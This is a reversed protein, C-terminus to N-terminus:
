AFKSKELIEKKIILIDRELLELGKNKIIKLSKSTIGKENYFKKLIKLNKDQHLLEILGININSQASRRSNRSQAYTPM